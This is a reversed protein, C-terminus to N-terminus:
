ANRTCIPKKRNMHKVYHLNKRMAEKMKGKRKSASKINFIENSNETNGVSAGFSEFSNESPSKQLQNEDDALDQSEPFIEAKNKPERCYIKFSPSSPGINRGSEIDEDDEESQLWASKVKEDKKEGERGKVENYLESHQKPESVPLPVVKSIKEVRKTQQIDNLSGVNSDGGKNEECDQSKGGDVSGDFNLEKRDAKRRLEEVRSRVRAPLVEGGKGNLRSNNTGM